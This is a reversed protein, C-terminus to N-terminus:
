AQQPLLSLAKIISYACALCCQQIHHCSMYLGAAATYEQISVPSAGIDPLARHIHGLYILM